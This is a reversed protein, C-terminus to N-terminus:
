RSRTSTSSTPSSAARRWGSASRRGSPPWTATSPPSSRAASSRWDPTTTTRRLRELEDEAADLESLSVAKQNALQELRRHNLRALNLSSEARRMRVMYDRSDIRLLVDGRKIRQGNEVLKEAVRGAVEVPTKVDLNAFVLGPLQISDRVTEYRVVQVDVPAREPKAEAALREKAEQLEQGHAVIMGVVMVLAGAGLALVLVLGFVEWVIAKRRNKAEAVVELRHSETPM